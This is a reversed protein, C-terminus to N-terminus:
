KVLEKYTINKNKANKIVSDMRGITDIECNGENLRFAFENIYRQLHKRSLKHFTGMYGRKLVAWVSEISNTHVEERVYEEKSHDVKDWDYLEMDYYPRHKYVRAKDSFVTAGSEVNKRIFDIINEKTLSDIVKLRVGGNRQKIGVVSMKGAGGAIGKQRKSKHKNKNKGGLYAEDVEVVGDLKEAYEVDFCERIRQMMFWASKQTIDLEKSLQLSSISKRATMMMYIAIVWNRVSINSREMPTNTRVNFYKRCAKCWSNHGDKQKTLNEVNGCRKCAAGGSWLISELYTTASENDPFKNLLGVIGITKAKRKKM